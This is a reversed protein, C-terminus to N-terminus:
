ISIGNIRIARREYLIYRQSGSDKYIICGKNCVECELRDADKAIVKLELSADDILITAGLPVDEVFSPCNTYIADRDSEQETGGYIYLRDGQNVQYGDKDKTATLRVEPGKTDILIAIKDSVARVNEVIKSAGKITAHASNIRVVNMGNKYLSRIFDAGCRLDSVTCIIKTKKDMM